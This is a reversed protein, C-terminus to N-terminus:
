IDHVSSAEVCHARCWWTDSGCAQFLAKNLTGVYITREADDLGQLSALPRGAYRFESAYDDEVIWVGTDRAWALLELRRPMTLAVGLPFQHSATV